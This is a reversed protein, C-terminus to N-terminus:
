DCDECGGQTCSSSEPPRGGVVLPLHTEDLEFGIASLDTLDTRGVDATEATPVRGMRIEPDM